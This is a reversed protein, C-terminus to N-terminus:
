GLISNLDDQSDGTPMINFKEVLINLMNPSVFAPLSPGLRINKVNLYLLSLLICVAKQEFWSLVISLPLDNLGVDFADALAGAVKIASYADNCQGMDLLRPIGGIDGFDMTNFRYKGCALTLIMCDSPVKEALETYYNRGPKAGDCGGILFFHRIAKSKVADIVKDAVSLVTNHGFGTMITKEDATTAFGTMNKAQEIVASFDHDQIHSIGPWSVLGCTYIRNEYEAKPQQICNTTMVIPGPFASFESQQNQWATGYNGALHSYKKLEPYSNAPLMESHTYVNVGTDQTQKLLLELDLLDHGSVLICKGAVPTIRVPTPEPHGYKTTNASDLMAMVDINVKGCELNANLLQNADASSDGLLAMTDSIFTYVADSEVGLQMAHYAYAALGKLGYLLLEQLGVIDEGLVNKRHDIQYTAEIASTQNDNIQFQTSDTLFSRGTEILAEYNKEDFSVNTVTTFLADLFFHNVATNRPCDGKKVEIAVQKSLEILMDNLASVSETKGCVGRVSCGGKATQECQYCYM